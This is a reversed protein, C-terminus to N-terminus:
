RDWESSVPRLGAELVATGQPLVPPPPLDFPGDGPQLVVTPVDDPVSAFRSEVEGEDVHCTREDGEPV